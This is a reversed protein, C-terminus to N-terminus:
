NLAEITLGIQEIGDLNEERMGQTISLTYDGTQDLAIPYLLKITKLEGWGEGLWKGDPQAINYEMTDTRSNGDPYTLTTFLFLNRFGYDNNHKLYFHSAFKGPEQIDFEFEQPNNENWADGVTNMASHAEKPGCAIFLSLIGLLALCQKM